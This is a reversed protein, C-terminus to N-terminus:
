ATGNHQDEENSLSLSAPKMSGPKWVPPPPRVHSDLDSSSVGRSHGRRKRRRGQELANSSGFWVVTMYHVRKPCPGDFTQGDFPDSTVALRVGWVSSTA